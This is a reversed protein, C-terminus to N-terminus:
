EERPRSAVEEMSDLYSQLCSHLVHQFHRAVQYGRFRTLVQLSPVMQGITLSERCVVYVHLNRRTKEKKKKCQQNDLRDALRGPLGGRSNVM